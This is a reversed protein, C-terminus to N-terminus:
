EVPLQRGKETLRYTYPNREGRKEIYGKGHTATGLIAIVPGLQLKEIGLAKLRPSIASMPIWEGVEATLDEFVQIIGPLFRQYVPVFPPTPQFPLTSPADRNPDMGLRLGKSGLWDKVEILTTRGSNPIRRIQHESQRVLQDLTVLNDNKLCNQTRVSLNGVGAEELTQSFIDHGTPEAIDIM